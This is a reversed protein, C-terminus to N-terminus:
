TIEIKAQVDSFGIKGYNAMKFFISLMKGASGSKAYVDIMELVATLAVMNLVVENIKVLNQLASYVNQVL